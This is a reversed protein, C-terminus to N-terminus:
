AAKPACPRRSRKRCAMSPIKRASKRTGSIIPSSACCLRKRRRGSSRRMRQLARGLRSIPSIPALARLSNPGTGTKALHTLTDIEASTLTEALRDRAALPLFGALADIAFDDGTTM